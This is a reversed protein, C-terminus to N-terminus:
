LKFKFKGAYYRGIELHKKRYYRRVEPICIKKKIKVIGNIYGEMYAIGIYFPHTFSYKIFKSLVYVPHYDRYYDSEGKTIYGKWLGEASGTRRTQIGIIDEFKKTEWGHLLALVNSVSDASYSLPFGGTEILCERRWVRLGGIPLNDRGKETVLNEAEFYATSGSAVGLNPDQEFRDIMKEFFNKELIMDADILGIYEVPIKEASSIELSLSLGYRVVEAYHFSLDRKQGESTVVRIWNYKTEIDRLIKASNDTSNDNIILWLKPTITQNIISEALEPLSKEENKCPTTLIYGSEIAM